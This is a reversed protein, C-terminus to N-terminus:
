VVKYKLVKKKEECKLVYYNFLVLFNILWFNLIDLNIIKNM